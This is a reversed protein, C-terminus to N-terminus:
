EQFTFLVVVVVTTYLVVGLSRAAVAAMVLVAVMATMAIVPYSITSSIRAAAKAASIAIPTGVVISAPM